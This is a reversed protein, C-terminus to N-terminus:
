FDNTYGGNGLVPGGTTFTREYSGKRFEDVSARIAYDHVWGEVVLIRADIRDTVALFPVIGVGYLGAALIILVSVAAWGRASLGWRIKLNYLGLCATKPLDPRTIMSAFM